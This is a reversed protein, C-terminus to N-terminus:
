EDEVKIRYSPAENEKGKLVRDLFEHTDDDHTTNMVTIIAKRLREVEESYEEESDIWEKAFKEDRLRLKLRAEFNSM